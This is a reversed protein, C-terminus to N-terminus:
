PAGTMRAPARAPLAAHTRRRHLFGRHGRATKCPLRQERRGINAHCGLLSAPWPKVQRQAGAEQEQRHGTERLARDHCPPQFQVALGRYRRVGIVRDRDACTVQMAQDDAGVARHRGEAGVCEALAINGGAKGSDSRDGSAEAVAQCQLGIAGHHGPAVVAGALCRHGGAEGTDGRDGGSQVV